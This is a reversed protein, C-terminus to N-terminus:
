DSTSWVKHIATRQQKRYATIAREYFNQKKSASVIIWVSVCESLEWRKKGLGDKTLVIELAAQSSSSSSTTPPTVSLPLDGLVAVLHFVYWVLPSSSLQQQRVRESVPTWSKGSLRAIRRTRAVRVWQENARVLRSLKSEKEQRRRNRWCTSGRGCVNLARSRNCHLIAGGLTTDDRGAQQQLTSKSITDAATDCRKM